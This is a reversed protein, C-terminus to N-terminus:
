IFVTCSHIYIYLIFKSMTSRLLSFVNVSLTFAATVFYWCLKQKM